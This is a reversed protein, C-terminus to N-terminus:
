TRGTSGQFHHFFNGGIMANKIRGVREGNQILYAVELSGSFDGGILDGLLIGNIQHIEIGMDIDGRLEALPKSGPNM